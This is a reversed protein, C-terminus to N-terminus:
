RVLSINGKQTVQEGSSFTAELYYVFVATNMLKGKYTGDWCLKPDTTEFVREGWRDYIAFYLSTICTNNSTNRPYICELENQGDRNPSFANPVFLEGCPMDVTVRLCASDSCGNLDTVTVCYNTSQAPSVTIAAVTDGTSWLYTGGGTATLQTNDGPNITIDPTVTAIPGPSSAVTTSATQTCGNTDTVTVIYSGTALGTATPTLQPPTTNWSYSYGPSRFLM